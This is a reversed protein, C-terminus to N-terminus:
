WMDIVKQCFTSLLAIQIRQNYNSNEFHVSYSLYLEGLFFTVTCDAGYFLIGNRVEVFM